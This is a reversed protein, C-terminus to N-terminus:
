RPNRLYQQTFIREPMEADFDISNVRIRTEHGAKDVTRMTWLVPIGRGDMEAVESMTMERRLEDRRNFYRFRVPVLPDLSVSLEIRGWTVPVGERPRLILTYCELGGIEETEKFEHTYDEILSSERVLDDNNFDSGMWSRLMMSPPIKITRESRPLYTWLQYGNRLFTTDRDRAPGLIHIFSREGVRDDWSRFILTRRWDPTVVEMTMESYARDSRMLEEIREVLARADV